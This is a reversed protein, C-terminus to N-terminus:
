TTIASWVSGTRGVTASTYAGVNGASDLTQTTASTCAVNECHAVKLDGNTEGFYSILGLRDAGITVSTSAGVIGANDLTQTAASTCDVDECQAVRLDGNTFDGYSILGLGDTGVTVSTQIGVDGVSDLTALANAAPPRLRDITADLEAQTAPDFDLKAVSLVGASRWGVLFGLRMHM